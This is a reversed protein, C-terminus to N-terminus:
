HSFSANQLSHHGTSSAGSMAYACVQDIGTSRGEDLLAAFCEEGLVRRAEDRSQTYNDLRDPPLPIGISERIEEAAGFLLPAYELRAERVEIEAIGELCTAIGQRADLEMFLPLASRFLSSAEETSSKIAVFGLNSLAL